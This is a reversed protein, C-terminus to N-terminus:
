RRRKGFARDVLYCFHAGIVALLFLQFLFLDPM